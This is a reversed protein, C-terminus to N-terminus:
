PLCPTYVLKLGRAGHPARRYTDRLPVPYMTEIWAGRAPRSALQAKIKQRCPLKLGRAGHPARSSM